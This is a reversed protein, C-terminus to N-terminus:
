VAASAAEELEAIVIRKMRMMSETVRKATEADSSTTLEILRRPVIQWSVGFRDKLWGCPGEEGGETLADWFHDVQDQDDCMV